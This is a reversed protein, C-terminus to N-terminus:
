AKEEEVGHKYLYFYPTQGDDSYKSLVIMGEASMGEGYYFQWESFSGIVEKVFAQAGKTFSEVQDPSDEELKAKLRVYLCTPKSEIKLHLQNNKM